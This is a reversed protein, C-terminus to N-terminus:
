RENKSWPSILEVARLRVSKARPNAIIEEENAQLAGRTLARLRPRDEDPIVPLDLPATDTLGSAFVNKVLRDELSQYSEVVLRGGLRLSELAKPVTRELITLEDNVAIRLAQFTRKAPNGGKRKGTAPIANRVLEALQNTTTLEGADRARVIAQAIRPAFREEGYLRLIRTLESTSSTAILEEASIGEDQNMRMDLPGDQAYAFGREPDDLQMSSVGLDALIADVKGSYEGGQHGFREAVERIEDYTGHHSVFRDGFPLLRQKALELAQRDRDIGIVTATPIAQLVAETHGGLGLTADIMISGPATLAPALLEVCTDCLVPEHLQKM